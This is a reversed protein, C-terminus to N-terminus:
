ISGAQVGGDGGDCGGGVGAVEIATRQMLLARKSFMAGEELDGDERRCVPMNPPRLSCFKVAPPLKISSIGPQMLKVASTVMGYVFLEQLSTRLKLHSVVPMQSLVFSTDTSHWASHTRTVSDDFM